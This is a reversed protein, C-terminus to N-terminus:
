RDIKVIGIQCSKWLIVDIYGIPYDTSKHIEEFMQHYNKYGLAESLRMIWVDPKVTNIGLNRAIHNQTIPGIFPLNLLFKMRSKDDKLQYYSDSLNKKNVWVKKIASMKNKNNFISLLVALDVENSGLTQLYKVIEFYKKKATKQSFGSALIVYIVESAFDSPNLVPPNSLRSKIVDVDDKDSALNNEILYKELLLFDERNISKITKNLYSICIRVSM